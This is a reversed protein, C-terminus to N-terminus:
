LAEPRNNIRVPKELLHVRAQQYDAFGLSYRQLQGARLELLQTFTALLAQDHTIVLTGGSRQSIWNAL